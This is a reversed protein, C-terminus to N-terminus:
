VTRNAELIVLLGVGVLILAGLTVGNFVTGSMGVNFAVLILVLGVAQRSKRVKDSHAYM